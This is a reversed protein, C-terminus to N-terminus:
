RAYPSTRPYPFHNNVSIEEKVSVIKEPGFGIRTVTTHVERACAHTAPEGGVLNNIKEKAEIYAM